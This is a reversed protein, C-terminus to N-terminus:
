FTIKKWIFFTKKLSDPKYYPGAHIVESNRSSTHSGIYKEMDIVILKLGAKVLKAAISLGVVGSGIILIDTKIKDM